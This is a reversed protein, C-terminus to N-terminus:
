CFTIKIIYFFIFFISLHLTLYTTCPDVEKLYQGHKTTEAWVNSCHLTSIESAPTAGEVEVLAGEVEGFKKLFIKIVFTGMKIKIINIIKCLGM